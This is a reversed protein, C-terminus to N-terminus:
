FPSGTLRRRVTSASLESWIATNLARAADDPEAEVAIQLRILAARLVANSADLASIRLDDDAGGALARLEGALGTDLRVREAQRFLARIARNEEVLRAAMRDWEETLVALAAGVMAITGGLYPPQAQPAISTLLLETLHALVAQPDPKM